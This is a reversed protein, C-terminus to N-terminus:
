YQKTWFTGHHLPFHSDTCQRSAVVLGKTALTRLSTTACKWATERFRWLLMSFQKKQGALVFEKHVIRKIDFFIILMSKFKNKILRVKKRDRRTQVKRTRSMSKEGFAQRIMELTETGCKGLNACCKISIRQLIWWSIADPWICSELYFSTFFWCTWVATHFKTCQSGLYALVIM